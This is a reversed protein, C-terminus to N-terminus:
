SHFTAIAFVHAINHGLGEGQHADDRRRELSLNGDFRENLVSIDHIPFEFAREIVLEGKKPTRKRPTGREMM